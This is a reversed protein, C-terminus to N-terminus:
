FRNEVKIKSGIELIHHRMMRTIFSFTMSTGSQLSEGSLTSIHMHTGSTLTNILIM